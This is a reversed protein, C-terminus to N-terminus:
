YDWLENPVDDELSFMKKSKRALINGEEDIWLIESEKQVWSLIHTGRYQFPSADGFVIPIQNFETDTIQVGKNNVYGLLGKPVKRVFALGKNFFGVEAFTPTILEKGSADVLGYLGDKNVWAVGDHFDLASEYSSSTLQKGDYVNLLVVENTPYTTKWAWAIKEAYCDSIEEYKCPVSIKGTSDVMGFLGEKAMMSYGHHFDGTGNFVFDTLEKGSRDILAWFGSANYHVFIKTIMFDDFLMFRRKVDTVKGKDNKEEDVLIKQVMSGGKHVWAAGSSYFPGAHEYIPPVIEKKRKLDYYGWKGGSITMDRDNMEGGKNVSVIDGRCFDIYDYEVPCVLNGHFDMVGWKGGFPLQDYKCKGGENVWAYDGFFEGVASFKAEVVLSDNENAYGWLKGIKKPFLEQGWLPFLFQISIVLLLIRRM